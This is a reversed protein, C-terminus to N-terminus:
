PNRTAPLEKLWGTAFARAAETAERGARYCLKWEAPKAELAPDEFRMLQGRKVLTAQFNVDATLDLFDQLRSAILADPNAPHEAAFTALREQFQRQQNEQAQKTATEMMEQYQANKKLAEQQAKMQKVSEAMQKQMEPPMKKISEEMEKMSKATEADQEAKSKVQDRGPRPRNAELYEAYRTKFAATRTYAKLMTGLGNVIAAKRDPAAAKFVKQGGPINSSGDWIADFFSNQADQERISLEQLLATAQPLLGATLASSFVGCLGVVVLAGAL